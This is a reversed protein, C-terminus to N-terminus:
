TKGNIVVVRFSRGCDTCIYSAGDKDMETLSAVDGCWTCRVFLPTQSVKIKGMVPIAM